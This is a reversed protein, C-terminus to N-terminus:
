NKKTEGEVSHYITRGGGKLMNKKIIEGRGKKLGLSRRRGPERGEILKSSTRKGAGGCELLTIKENGKQSTRKPIFTKRSCGKEPLAEM